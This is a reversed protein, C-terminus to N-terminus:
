GWEKRRRLGVRSRSGLGRGLSLPYTSAFGKLQSRIITGTIMESSLTIFESIAEVAM